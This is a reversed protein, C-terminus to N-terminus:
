ITAADNFGRHRPPEVAPQPDPVYAGSVKQGIFRLGTQPSPESEELVKEVEDM